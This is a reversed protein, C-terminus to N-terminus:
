KRKQPPQRRMVTWGDRGLIELPEFKRKYDMKPSGQVWYGLYVYPLGLERALRVHDAIMFTGLSRKSEDPEFFSYVMSLGDELRDSLACALLKGEENRYELVFTDVPTQEVMQQYDLVTMDTMGGGDHRADLYGRLVSFQETTVTAPTMKRTLDANKRFVRKYRDDDFGEAVIRVARCANCGDCAPLYAINQSRRFGRRSLLSNVEPARDGGLFTFIKKEKRGELYPCDSAATVYFESRSGLFFTNM